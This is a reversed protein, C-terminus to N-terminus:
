FPENDFFQNNIINRIKDYERKDTIAYVLIPKKRKQVIRALYSQPLMSACCAFFDPDNNSVIGVSYAVFQRLRAEIINKDKFDTFNQGRIIEPANQAFWRVVFPNFSSIAVDGSYKQLVVYVEQCIKQVSNSKCKIEIILPVKGNIMKLVDVLLSIKEKTGSLYLRNIDKYKVKTVIGNKGTMRRLTWDHLIVLHNDVTLQVDLEIPYNGNVACEFATRSNEPIVGSYLGRHAIPRQLLFSIDKIM